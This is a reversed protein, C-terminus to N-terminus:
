TRPRRSMKGKRAVVVFFIPIRGRLPQVAPDAWHYPRAVLMYFRRLWRPRIAPMCRQGLVDDDYVSFGAHRIAGVLEPVLFERVHYPNVPKDNLTHADPSTVARNPTSIILTGGGRLLAVFRDLAKQYDRVHEITEFSVIIDFPDEAWFTAADGRRFVMGQKQYHRRAYALVNEQVDVGVVEQAGADLLMRSGYGTGCALDLIRKGRAFQQAFRYRELHEAEINRPTTGLIACEGTYALEENM